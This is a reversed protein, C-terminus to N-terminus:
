VEAMALNWFCVNELVSERCWVNETRQKRSWVGEYNIKANAIENEKLKKCADYAISLNKHHIYDANYLTQNNCFSFRTISFTTFHYRILSEAYYVGSTHVTSPAALLCHKVPLRISGTKHYYRIVLSVFTM